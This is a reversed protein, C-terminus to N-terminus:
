VHARGIKAPLHAIGFSPTCSFAILTKGSLLHLGSVLEAEIELVTTAKEYVLRGAATPRLRQGSRDLLECGYQEEMFKIRKSVAPQTVHLAEAARSLSGTNVVEVLTKLYISELSKARGAAEYGTTILLM